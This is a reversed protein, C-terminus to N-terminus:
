VQTVKRGVRFLVTIGMVGAFIPLAVPAISGIQTTIDSVMTGLAGSLATGFATIMSAGAGEM